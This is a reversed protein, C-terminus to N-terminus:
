PEAKTEDFLEAPQPGTKVQVVQVDLRYRTGRALVFHDPQPSKVPGLPDLKRGFITELDVALGYRIYNPPFMRSSQMVFVRGDPKVLVDAVVHGFNETVVLRKGRTPSLALYGNLPFQAGRAAFIVRQTILAETPFLPSPPGPPPMAPHTACGALVLLCLLSLLNLRM